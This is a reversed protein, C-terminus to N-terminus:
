LLFVVPILSKMIEKKGIRGDKIVNEIERAVFFCFFLCEPTTRTRMFAFDLLYSKDLSMEECMRM